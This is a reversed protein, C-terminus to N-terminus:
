VAMKIGVAAQEPGAIYGVAASYYQGAGSVTLPMKVFIIVCPNGGGVGYAIEFSKNRGAYMRRKQGLKGAIVDYVSCIVFATLAVVDGKGDIGVKAYGGKSAKSVARARHPHAVVFGTFYNTHYTGVGEIGLFFGRQILLLFTHVDVAQKRPLIGGARNELKYGAKRRELIKGVKGLPFVGALPANGQRVFPQATKRIVTGEAYLFTKSLGAVSYKGLNSKIYAFGSECVGCVFDAKVLGKIHVAYFAGFTFKVNRGSRINIQAPRSDALIVVNCIGILIHSKHCGNCVAPDANRGMNDFGYSGGVAGLYPAFARRLLPKYAGVAGLHKFFIHAVIDFGGVPIIGKRPKLEAGLGARGFHTFIGSRM